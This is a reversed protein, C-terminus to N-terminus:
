GVVTANEWTLTPTITNWREAANVQQWAMEIQSLAYESVYFTIAAAKRALTFSIGEVFGFFATQYISTPLNPITIPKGITAHILADRLVSPLNPNHLPITVSQLSNRPYARTTLYLDVMDQADALNELLTDKQAVFQGWTAISVLDSGTEVQNNKYTIRIDNILDGLSSKASLGIGGIYDADIETFGNNAVENLRFAADSYNVLGDASEWLVGLASTAVQNLHSIASTAGGSYATIEYSGPTDVTGVFAPDYTTWTLAPDVGAWTLTPSEEIWSTAEYDQLIQLVRDGDFEKPYSAATLIRAIRSIPGAVTVDIQVTMGISGHQQISRQVDTVYGYFVNEAVAQASDLVTVIVPDNLTIAPYSGDTVVLSITAYGARPQEDVTNRGSTTQIANITDGTYSVGGITVTPLPDYFTM